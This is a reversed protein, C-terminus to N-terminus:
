AEGAAEAREEALCPDVHSWIRRLVIASVTVKAIGFESALEGQLSEGDAYRRRIERVQAENLKACGHNSGRAHRGKQVMDANNDAITGLFLHGPNVCSLNDCRHCVFMGEPIPGHCMEFAIRHSGYRKQSVRFQGYGSSLLVGTWKWCDDAGRRDVQSWFRAEPPNAAVRLRGMHRNNCPVCRLSGPKRLPAGCDTCIRSMSTDQDHM